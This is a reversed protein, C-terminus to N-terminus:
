QDAKAMRRRELQPPSNPSVRAADAIEIIARFFLRTESILALEEGDLGFAAM